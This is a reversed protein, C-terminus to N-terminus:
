VYTYTKREKRRNSDPPKYKLLQVVSFDTYAPLWPHARIFSLYVARDTRDTQRDTDHGHRHRHRYLQPPQLAEWNFSQMFLSTVVDDNSVMAILILLLLRSHSSWTALIVSSLIGCLNSNPQNGCALGGPQGLFVENFNIDFVHFSSSSQYSTVVFKIKLVSHGLM